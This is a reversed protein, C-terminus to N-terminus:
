HSVGDHGNKAPDCAEFIGFGAAELRETVQDLPANQFRIVVKRGISPNEAYEVSFISHVIAGTDEVIGAINGITGKEIQCPALTIGSWPQRAGLVRAALRFIENASVIGVVKDDELVPFQSVGTDQGTRLCYEMTDGVDVTAPNRVMLDKAKLRTIFYNIEYQDQTRTVNESARLCNARSILGRLRGDDVVPVARLNNESLLRKVDTVLTDSSVIMPDKTMWNRVIM